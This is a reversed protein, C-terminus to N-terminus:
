NKLGVGNWKAGKPNPFEEAGWGSWNHEGGVRVDERFSVIYLAKYYKQLSRM